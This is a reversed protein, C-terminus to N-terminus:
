NRKRMLHFSKNGKVDVLGLNRFNANKFALISSENDIKVYSHISRLNTSNLIEKTSLGIIASGFGRKRYVKHISISITAEEGTIDFRVQGIPTNGLMAIFFKCSPDNLRDSLWKIHDEWSIAATSFSASRVQPDNALHWLFLADNEQVQRLQLQATAHIM